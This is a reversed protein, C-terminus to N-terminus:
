TAGEFEALLQAYLAAPTSNRPTGSFGDRVTVPKNINRMSLERLAEAQARLLLLPRDVAQVTSGTADLRHQAFYWFRFSSGFAALHAASPAPDFVLAGAQEKVRPLAGAYGKSWPKCPKNGWLHTKYDIFEAQVEAPLPYIDQEAQLTITGLLTRRRKRSFAALATQLHRKWDAQDPASFVSAADHLSRQLDDLVDAQTM